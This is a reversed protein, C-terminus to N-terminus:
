RHLVAAGPSSRLCSFPTPQFWQKPRVLMM